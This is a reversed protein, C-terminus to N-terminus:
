RYAADAADSHQPQDWGFDAGCLPVFRLTTEGIRIVDGASLEETSLVPRGNRRVLNAKGGHGIFFAKQEPDFAIAAHNDRSISNDGFDLRVTQDEGRGIVTVGSFLTFAAGRGPGQVIALWGVPFQTYAPAAAEASRAFPDAGAAQAPSFGLLRTKVRGARSAGRGMSPAPVDIPAADPAQPAAAQPEEPAPQPAPAPAAQQVPTEPRSVSAQVDVPTRALEPEPLPEPEPQVEPLPAPAPAPAAPATGARDAATDPDPGAANSRTFVRYPRATDAAPDPQQLRSFDPEAGLPEATDEEAEDEHPAFFDEEPMEAPDAEATDHDPAAFFVAPDPRDQASPAEAQSQERAFFAAIADEDPANGGVSGFAEAADEGPIAGPAALPDRIDEPLPAAAAPAHPAPDPDLRFGQGLSLPARSGTEEAPPQVPEAAPAASGDLRVRERKEGIIDKIFKM